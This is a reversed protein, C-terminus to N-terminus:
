PTTAHATENAQQAERALGADEERYLLTAVGVAFFVLIATGLFEVAFKRIIARGGPWVHVSTV